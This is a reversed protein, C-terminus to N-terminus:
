PRYVSFWWKPFFFHSDYKCANRATDRHKDPAKTGMNNQREAFYDDSHQRVFGSIAASLGGLMQEVPAAGVLAAVVVLM